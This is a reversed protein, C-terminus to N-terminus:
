QTELRIGKTQSDGFGQLRVQITYRGIPLLTFEYRGQTDAPTERSAGTEEDTAVVAAGPLVAGSSDTIIGFLTGARSQAAAVGSFLGLLVSLGIFVRAVRMACTREGSRSQKRSM